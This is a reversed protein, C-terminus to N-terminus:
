QLEGTKMKLRSKSSPIIQKTEAPYSPVKPTGMNSRTRCTGPTRRGSMIGPGVSLTASGEGLDWKEGPIVCCKIMGNVCVQEGPDNLSQGGRLRASDAANAKGGKRSFNYSVVFLSNEKPPLNSFM